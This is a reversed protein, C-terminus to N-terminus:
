FFNCDYLILLQLSIYPLVYLKNFYKITPKYIVLRSPTPHNCIFFVMSNLKQEGFFSFGFFLEKWIFYKLFGVNKVLEIWLGSKSFRAFTNVADFVNFNFFVLKYKVIIFM